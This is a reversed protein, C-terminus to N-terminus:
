SSLRFWDVYRGCARRLPVLRRPDPSPVAALQIPGGPTPGTLASPRQERFSLTISTGASVISGLAFYPGPRDNYAPMQWRHGEATVVLPEPSVYELSLSWRGPPVQVAASISRGSPVGPVAMTVPARMVAAIGRQRSLVREGHVKCNLVAGPQGPPEIVERPVAFSVRRWLEYMPLRRVLRFATPVQSAYSTNTTILYSFRNITSPDASDFDLATAATDPKNTRPLARGMSTSDVNLASMDSDQFIWSAYDTDGLFLLSHGRTVRDLSLLERTSEPAWVPSTRLAEYSSHAALAIFAVAVVGRPAATWRSLAPVPARLLARGVTVGILPGAVDLAKAAVYASQGHSARWYVIACAAVAAPLVLERRRVSWILGLLVVALALAGFEGAHFASVPPFRFDANNWIGFAEYPSLPGALNGINSASIAGTAAPSTGVLDFFSIIRSAIPLLLVVFVALALGCPPGLEPLRGRWKRLWDPHIVVEAVMWVALILGIWAAAPYSYVYVAGAWLVSIPLLGLWRGRAKGDWGAHLHEMHLVMALLIMGLLTEKFAAEGYYAAPLYLLAALVGIIPQKFRSDGPLSAAGVLATILVAAIALGTMALDLRAGLGSAVSDILSHPGLPYGSPLGYRAASSPSRLSQAWSLHNATDNDLGVGLLGVRGNAIFPIAVGFGAILLTIVAAVPPRGFRSGKVVVVGAALTVLLLIVAATVARGPLRIAISAIVILACLGVAPGAARCRLGLVTLAHGVVVSAAVLAAASGCVQLVVFPRRDSACGLLPRYWRPDRPGLGVRRPVTANRLVM